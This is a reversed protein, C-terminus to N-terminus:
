KQAESRVLLIHLNPCFIMMFFIAANKERAGMDDFVLSAFVGEGRVVRQLKPVYYKFLEKM